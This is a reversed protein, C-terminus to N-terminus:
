GERSSLWSAGALGLLAGALTDTPYHCGYGALLVCLGCVALACLVRGYRPLRVALMGLLLAARMAHGSPLSHDFHVGLVTEPLRGAPQALLLKGAFECLELACIVALARVLKRVRSGGAATLALVGLVAVSQLPAFLHM